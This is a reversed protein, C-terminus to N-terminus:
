YRYTFTMKMQQNQILCVAKVVIRTELSNLTDQIISTRTAFHKLANWLRQISTGVTHCHNKVIFYLDSHDVLFYEHWSEKKDNKQEVCNRLGDDRCQRTLCHRTFSSSDMGNAVRCCIGNMQTTLSPCVLCVLLSPLHLRWRVPHSRDQPRQPHTLGHRTRGSPHSLNGRQLAPPHGSTRLTRAETQVDTFRWNGRSSGEALVKDSRARNEM